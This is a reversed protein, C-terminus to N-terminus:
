SVRTLIYGDGHTTVSDATDSTLTMFEVCCDIRGLLKRKLIGDHM